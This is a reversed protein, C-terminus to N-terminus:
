QAAEVAAEVAVVAGVAEAAVAAEAEAAAVAARYVPFLLPFACLLSSRKSNARAWTEAAARDAVLSARIQKQTLLHTGPAAGSTATRSSSSLM